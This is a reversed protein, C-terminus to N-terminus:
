ASRKVHRAVLNNLEARQDVSLTRTPFYLFRDKGTYLLTVKEDQAFAVIASWFFKTEALSPISSVVGEDDIEISCGRGAKTTPPLREFGKRTQHNRSIPVAISLYILLIEILTLTGSESLPTKETINLFPWIVLGLVALLPVVMNLLVFKIRSGPSQYRDLQHAAKCDALTITYELTM